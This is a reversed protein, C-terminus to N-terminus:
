SYPARYLAPLGLGRGCDSAFILARSAPAWAPSFSNCQGGTLQRSGGSQLNQVWIQETGDRSRTFALSRGDPSVAPNIEEGVGNTLQYTRGSVLDLIFIHAHGEPGASVAIRASDPFFSADRVPGPLAHTVTAEAQRIALAGRTVFAILRGNPSIAPKTPDLDPSVVVESKGTMTDLSM